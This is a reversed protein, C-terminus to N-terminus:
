TTVLGRLAELKAPGIGRVETLDDISAFPGHEDRYGVIAAATSPGVGPLSDLQEASASNLDLPGAPTTSGPPAGGADIPVAEGELPVYVRTGDRLGAALNVGDTAAGAAFGGAAAVADIVRSDARLHYVGPSVVAGAVHVVVDGTTATPESAAVSTASRPPAAATTSAYPLQSETTPRPARLLWWAAGAVLLVAAGGALLRAAGFWAVWQRVRDVPRRPPSPRPLDPASPPSEM